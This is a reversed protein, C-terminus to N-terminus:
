IKFERELSCGCNPRMIVEFLFVSCFGAGWGQPNRCALLPSQSEKRPSEVVESDRSRKELLGRMVRVGSSANRVDRAGAQSYWVCPESHESEQGLGVARLAVGM